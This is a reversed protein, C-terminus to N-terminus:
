RRKWVFLIAFLLVASVNCLVTFGNMPLDYWGSNYVKITTIVIFGLWQLSLFSHLIIASARHAIEECCVAAALLIFRLYFAIEAVLSVTLIMEDAFVGISLLIRLTLSLVSCLLAGGGLIWRPVNRKHRLIYFIICATVSLDCLLSLSLCVWLSALSLTVTSQVVQLITWGAMGILGLLPYLATPKQLPPAKPPSVLIAATVSLLGAFFLIELWLHLSLGLSIDETVLLLVHRNLWLFGFYLMLAATGAAGLLLSFLKKM